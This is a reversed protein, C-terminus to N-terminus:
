LLHSPVRSGLALRFPEQGHGVIFVGWHILQGFEEGRGFERGEDAHGLRGQAVPAVEAFAWLAESEAAPDAVAFGVDDGPDVFFSVVVWVNM